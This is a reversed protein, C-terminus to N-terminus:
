DQSGLLKSIAKETEIGFAAYRAKTNEYREQTM